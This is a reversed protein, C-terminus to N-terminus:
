YGLCGFRRELFKHLERLKKAFKMRKAVILQVKKAKEKRKRKLRM